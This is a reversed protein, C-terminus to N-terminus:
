WSPQSDSPRAWAAVAVGDELTSVSCHHMRLSAALMRGLLQCAHTQTGAGDSMMM